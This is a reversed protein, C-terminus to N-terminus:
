QAPIEIKLRNNDLNSEPVSGDNVVVEQPRAPVEVRTTATSKARMELRKTVEGGEVRVTIPVEAGANGLNEITVTVVYGGATTASPYASVVRFDPLGRDHYVWDDFFWKLDRDSEKEILKEMYAPDTDESTKYDLLAKNLTDGVIDHLMWWVYMAKSQLSLDDPTGSLSRDVKTQSDGGSPHRTTEAVRALLTRHHNLYDLVAQRGNKAQLHLLAAYHALGEHIWPRPSSVTERTRAYMLTLEAEPSIPATLPTLLMGETAYPAAAPDPLELVQLNDPGRGVPVLPPTRTLEEAYAKAADEHGPLYNVACLNATMEQYEAIVFTPTNDGFRMIHFASYKATDGKDVMMTLLNKTGSFLALGGTSSLLVSMKSDRHRAKWETLTGFASDGESLSVAEMAVPYWVVYGVGRVATFSPSIQDWDTHRAVDEPVGIQKLRTTDLLVVGEYGIDIDVTGKPPVEQPLTVIAESLRGTHDIDSVYPQSVFQVPKGAVQISRWDLSSSIQLSVIKQPVLSDNRLSIRGRIALRSQEPEIRVNLNYETFTFAGRDLSFCTTTALACVLVVIRTFKM